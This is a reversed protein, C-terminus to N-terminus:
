AFLGVGSQDSQREKRGFGVTEGFLCGKGDTLNRDFYQIFEPISTQQFAVLWAAITQMGGNGIIRAVKVLSRWCASLDASAFAVTILNYSANIDALRLPKAGNTFNQWYGTLTYASLGSASPTNKGQTTGNYCPPPNTPASILKGPERKILTFREAALSTDTINKENTTATSVLSWTASGGNVTIHYLSTGNTAWGETDSIFNLNALYVNFSEAQDGSSSKPMTGAPQMNLKQWGGNVFEYLNVNGDSSDKVNYEHGVVFVHQADPASLTHRGAILQSDFSSTPGADKITYSNSSTNIAITFLHLFFHTPDNGDPDAQIEVPLIGSGDGFITPPSSIFSSNNNQEPAGGPMLVASTYDQTWNAGGSTSTLLTHGINTAGAWGMVSQSQAQDPTLTCGQVTSGDDQACYSYSGPGQSDPPCPSYQVMTMGTIANQTSIVTAPVGPTVDLTHWTVGGDTSHYLAGVSTGTATVETALEMWGEHRNFFNIESAGVLNNVSLVNSTMWTKGGDVTSRVYVNIGITPVHSTDISTHGHADTTPIPSAAINSQATALADLDAQSMNERVALWAHNADLFGTSIIGQINPESQDLPEWDAPTVDVWTKGGDSTRMVANNTTAWGNNADFMKLHNFANEGFANISPMGGPAKLPSSTPGTGFCLAGMLVPSLIVLILLAFPKRKQPLTVVQEEM